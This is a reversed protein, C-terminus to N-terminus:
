TAIQSSNKQLQMQNDILSRIYHSITKSNQKCFKFQEEDLYMTISRPNKLSPKRGAGPRYGGRGKKITKMMLNEKM